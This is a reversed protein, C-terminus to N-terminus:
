RNAAHYTLVGNVPVLLGDQRHEPVGDAFDAAEVLGMSEMGVMAFRFPIERYVRSAVDALWDDIPRRWMLSTKGSDASFPYGDIAPDTRALGGLPLYFSLWDSANEFRVAVAGCVIDHEDPLRVIGRLHGNARLSDLTLQAPIHLAPEDATAAFCGVVLAERWVALLARELRADNTPGLEIALEYFGGTWNEADDLDSPDPMATLSTRFM